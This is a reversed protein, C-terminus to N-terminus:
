SYEMLSSEWGLVVSRMGASMVCEEGQRNSMDRWGGM